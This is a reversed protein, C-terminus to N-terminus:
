KNQANYEDMYSKNCKRIFGYTSSLALFESKTVEYCGRVIPKGDLKELPIDRAVFIFFGKKTKKEVKKETKVPKPETKNTKEVPKKVTDKKKSKAV